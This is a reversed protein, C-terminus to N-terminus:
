RPFHLRVGSELQLVVQGPFVGVLRGYQVHAGPKTSPFM